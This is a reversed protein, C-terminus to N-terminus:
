ASLLIYETCDVQHVYAFRMLTKILQLTGIIWIFKKLGMSKAFEKTREINSHGSVATLEARGDKLIAMAHFDAIMGCSIIGVFRIKDM